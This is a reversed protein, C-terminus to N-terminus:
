LKMVFHSKDSRQEELSDGEILQPMNQDLWGSIDPAYRDGLDKYNMTRFEGNEKEIM